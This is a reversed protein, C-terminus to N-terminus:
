KLDIEFSYGKEIASFDSKLFHSTLFLKDGKRQISLYHFMPKFNFAIDPLRKASTDLPQHLGGGGGIVLFNKGGHNFHEFAHAHGTIFLRCKATSLYAPVFYNQVHTSSGVIKSNSYPAHHCSVIILRIASDRNLSSLTETYWHQQKEIEANSLKGFNSNLMVVAISDIISTYGVDVNDPFRRQFNAEGEKRSWMVDHNGLLAHVSINTKRATDLFKDIEKWRHDSSGAATVDGLMYIALPKQRVMDALLLATARTNHNPRLIIEEVATPQQTDSIFDIVNYHASDSQAVSIRIIASFCVLLFTKCHRTAM